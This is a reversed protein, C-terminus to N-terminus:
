IGCTFCGSTQVDAITHRTGDHRSAPGAFMCCGVLQCCFSAPPFGDASLFHLCYFYLLSVQLTTHVPSDLVHLHFYYHSQLVDMDYLDQLFRFLLRLQLVGMDNLVQLFRFHSVVSHILLLLLHHVLLQHHHPNIRKISNLGYFMM